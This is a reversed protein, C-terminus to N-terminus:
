EEILTSSVTTVVYPEDDIHSLEPSQSHVSGDSSENQIVQEGPSKEDSSEGKPEDSSEEELAEM